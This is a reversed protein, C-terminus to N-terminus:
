IEHNVSDFANHLDCFIGSVFYIQNMAELITVDVHQTIIL